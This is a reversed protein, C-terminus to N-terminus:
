AARKRTPLLVVVIPNGSSDVQQQQPGKAETSLAGVRQGSTQKAGTKQTLKLATEIAVLSRSSSKQGTAQSPAETQAAASRRGFDRDGEPRARSQRASSLTSKDSRLEPEEQNKAKPGSRDQQQSRATEQLQAAAKYSSSVTKVALRVNSMSFDIKKEKMQEFVQRVIRQKEREEMKETDIVRRLQNSMLGVLTKNRMLKDILEDTLFMPRGAPRFPQQQRSSTEGTQQEPAASVSRKLQGM